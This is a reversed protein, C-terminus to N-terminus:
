DGDNGFAETPFGTVKLTIVFGFGGLGLGFEGEDNRRCFRRSLNQVHGARGSLRLAPARLLAPIWRSQGQGQGQGLVYSMLCLVYSKFLSFGAGLVSALYNVVFSWFGDVGLSM